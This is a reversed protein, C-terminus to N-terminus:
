SDSRRLAEVHKNHRGSQPTHSSLPERTQSPLVHVCKIPSLFCAPHAFPSSLSHSFKSPHPPPSPAPFFPLQFLSVQTQNQPKRFSPTCIPPDRRLMARHTGGHARTRMQIRPLPYACVCRRANDRAMALNLIYVASSWVPDTGRADSHTAVSNNNIRDLLTLGWRRKLHWAQNWCYARAWKM